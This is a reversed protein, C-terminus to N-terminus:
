KKRSKKLAHTSPAPDSKIVHSFKINPSLPVSPIPFSAPPKSSFQSTLMPPIYDSKKNFDYDKFVAGTILWGNEIKDRTPGFYAMKLSAISIKNKDAGSDHYFFIEELTAYQDKLPTLKLSKDKLDKWLLTFERFHFDGSQSSLATNLIPDNEAFSLLALQGNLSKKISTVYWKGYERREFSVVFRNQMNENISFDNTRTEKVYSTNLQYHTIHEKLALFDDSKDFSVASLNSLLHASKNETIENLLYLNYLPTPLNKNIIDITPIPFPNDDDIFGQQDAFANSAMLLILFLKYYKM